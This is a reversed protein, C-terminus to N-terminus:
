RDALLQHCQVPLERIRIGTTHNIANFVAAASGVIGIDGAGRPGM